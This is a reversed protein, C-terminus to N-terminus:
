EYVPCSMCLLTGDTPAAARYWPHISIFIFDNLCTSIFAFASISYWKQWTDVRFGMVVTHNSPGFQMFNNKEAGSFSFISVAVVLWCLMFATTLRKDEFLASLMPVCGTGQVDVGAVWLLGM